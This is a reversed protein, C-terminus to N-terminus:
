GGNVTIKRISIKWFAMSALGMVVVWVAQTGLIQLVNQM